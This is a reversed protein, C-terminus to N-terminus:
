TSFAKLFACELALSETVGTRGLSDRLSELAEARRLTEMPSHERALAATAAAYEPLEV